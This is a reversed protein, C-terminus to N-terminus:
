FLKEGGRAGCTDEGWLGLRNEMANKEIESFIHAYKVNPPTPEARALGLEVLERNLFREGTTDEDGPGGPTDGEGTKFYVYALIRMDNDLGKEDIELRVRRGEVMRRTHEAAEYACYEAPRSLTEPDPADIGGLRVVQERGHMEIEITDGSLVRTVPHLVADGSQDEQGEVSETTYVPEPATDVPGAEEQLHSSQYQIAHKRQARYGPYAMGILFLPLLTFIIKSYWREFKTTWLLLLGLPYCFFLSLFILLTNHYWPKRAPRNAGHAPASGSSGSKSKKLPSM